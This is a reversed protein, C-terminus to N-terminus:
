APRDARVRALFDRWIATTGYMPVNELVVQLSRAAPGDPDARIRAALERWDDVTGRALVDEVAAVTDEYGERIHRHRM